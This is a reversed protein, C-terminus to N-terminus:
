PGFRPPSSCPLCQMVQCGEPILNLSFLPLHHLQFLHLCESACFSKETGSLLTGKRAHTIPMPHHIKLM